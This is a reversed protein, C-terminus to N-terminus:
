WQMGSHYNPHPLRCLAALLSQLSASQAPSTFLLFDVDPYRNVFLLAATLQCLLFCVLTARDVALASYIASALVACSAIDPYSFKVTFKVM